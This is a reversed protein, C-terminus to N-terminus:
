KYIKKIKNTLSKLHTIGMLSTGIPTNVEHTIEAVLRGLSAMNEAEIILKELKISKNLLERKNIFLDLFINVKSLLIEKIVPKEIFDVAGSSYAKLRHADDRHVATVFIIPIDKTKDKGRLLQAVEYGDMEPM